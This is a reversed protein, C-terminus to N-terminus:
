INDAALPHEPLPTGGLATWLGIYELALERASQVTVQRNQALARDADIIDEITIDGSASRAERVLSSRQAQLREARQAASLRESAFVIAALSREVEHVASIVEDQWILYAQLVRAGAADEEAALAPQSFVPLSIAVGASRVTDGPDAARIVGDLSLQPYRNARAVGLQALAVEYSHEAQRIDPRNRVLDAPVGIESIGVPIPQADRRDLVEPLNDFPLGLLSALRRKAAVISARASPVAAQVEALYARAELVDLETGAELEAQGVAADLSGRALRLEESQLDLLAQYYRLQVYESAVDAVFGRRTDRFFAREQELQAEALALEATRRGFPLLDLGLGLSRGNSGESNTSASATASGEFRVGAARAEHQAAMLRARAAQISPSEELGVAILTDLAPDNFRQWWTGVEGAASSAVSVSFRDPLPLGLERQAPLVACGSLMSAALVGLAARRLFPYASSPIRM